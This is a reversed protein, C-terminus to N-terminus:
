NALGAILRDISTRLYEEVRQGAMVALMPDLETSTRWSANSSTASAETLDILAVVLAHGGIDPRVKLRLHLRTIGSELVEVTRRVSVAAEIPIGAVQTALRGEIHEVDIRHLGNCGPILQAILEPNDSAAVLDAVSKQLLAQGAIESM